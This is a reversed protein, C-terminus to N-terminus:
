WSRAKTVTAREAMQGAGDTSRVTQPNDKRQSRAQAIGVLSPATNSKQWTIEGHFSDLETLAVQVDGIEAQAGHGETFLDGLDVGM